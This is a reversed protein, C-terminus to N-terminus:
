EIKNQNYYYLPPFKWNQSKDGRMPANLYYNYSYDGYRSGRYDNRKPSYYKYKKNGYYDDMDMYERNENNIWNVNNNRNYKNRKVMYESKEDFVYENNDNYMRNDKNRKVMYESKEDFIYENNDNNNYNYPFPNIGINNQSKSRLENNNIIKPSKSNNNNNNNYYGDNNNNNNNFAGNNHNNYNNNNYNNDTNYNNFSNRNKNKYNPNLDYLNFNDSDNLQIYDSKKFPTSKFYNGINKKGPFHKKETNLGTPGDYKWHITLTNTDEEDMKIFQDKKSNYNVINNDINNEMRNPFALSKSPEIKISNNNINNNNNLMLKPTLVLPTKRKDFLDNYRHPRKINGLTNNENYNNDKNFEKELNNKNKRLSMYYRDAEM